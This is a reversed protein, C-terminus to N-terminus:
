ELVAHRAFFRLFFLNRYATTQGLKDELRTFTYSAEVCMDGALSQSGAIKERGFEYRIRPSVNLTELDISSVSFQGDKSKNIFYGADLFGRLGHGLRRDLSLTFATRETTGNQGSAPAIDRSATFAANAVEGKYSLSAKGVGGWGSTTTREKVVDTPIFFPGVAVGVPVLTDFSSDTRRLGAAMEISWRERLSHSFGTTAEYNSIDADTLTYRTYSTNLTAKTRPLYMGLDHTFSLAGTNYTLDSFRSNRYNDTGGGYLLSALTRETLAYDAEAQYTTSNKRVGSLVLGTTLLERDPQATSVYSGAASLGLRPNLSYRINGDVLGDTSDLSTNDKYLNQSLQTSVNLNLRETSNFLELGGTTTGAVDHVQRDSNLFVNDNFQLTQSISPVLRFEGAKALGPLLVAVLILVFWFPPELCSL